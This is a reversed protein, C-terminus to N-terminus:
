RSKTGARLFHRRLFGWFRPRDAESRLHRVKLGKEVTGGQAKLRQEFDAFVQRAPLVPNWGGLSRAMAVSVLFACSPRSFPNLTGFADASRYLGFGPEAKRTWLLLEDRTIETHGDLIWLWARGDEYALSLARNLGRGLSTEERFPAYHLRSADLSAFPEGVARLDVIYVPALVASWEHARETIGTDGDQWLFGLAVDQMLVM